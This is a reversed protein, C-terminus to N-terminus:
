RSTSWWRCVRSTRCSCRAPTFSIETDPENKPNWNVLADVHDKKVVRGDEFRLLNELLVKLSFPLKEVAAFQRALTQLSFIDYPIGGVNLKTRTKFTDIQAM